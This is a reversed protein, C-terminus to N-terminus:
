TVTLFCAFRCLVAIREIVEAHTNEAHTNEAQATKQFSSVLLFLTVTLFCAFRCSMAIREIVEAHSNHDIAIVITDSKASPM